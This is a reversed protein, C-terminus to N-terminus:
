FKYSFRTQFSFTQVKTKETDGKHKGSGEYWTFSLGTTVNKTIHGELLIGISLGGANFSSIVEATPTTAKFQIHSSQYGIKLAALNGSEHMGLPANFGISSLPEATILIKVNPPLQQGFIQQTKNTDFDPLSMKIFPLSAYIEAGLAFTDTVAGIYSIQCLTEFGSKSLFVDSFTSLITPKIGFNQIGLGFGLRLGDIKFASDAKLAQASLFFSLLAHALFKKM